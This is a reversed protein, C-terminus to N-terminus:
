TFAISIEDDDTANEVMMFPVNYALVGEKDEYKPGTSSCKPISITCINGASEGIQISLARTTNGKWDAWFPHTAELTADPNFSGKPDRDSIRFAYIAYSANFSEAPVVNAGFDLDLKSAIASYSGWTFSADQIIQPLTSELNSLTPNSADVITQYLGKFNFTIM